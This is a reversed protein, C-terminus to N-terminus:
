DLAISAMGGAAARQAFGNRSFGAGRVAMPIHAVYTAGSIFVERTQAVCRSELM